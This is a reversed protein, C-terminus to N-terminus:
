AVVMGAPNVFDAWADGVNEYEFSKGKALHSLAIVTPQLRSIDAGVIPSMEHRIKEGSVTRLGSVPRQTGTITVLM